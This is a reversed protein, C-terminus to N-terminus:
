LLARLLAPSYRLLSPERALVFPSLRTPFDIDGMSIVNRLSSSSLTRLLADLQADNLRLFVRRAIMARSLEKGIDAKWRREYESLKSSSFDGEEIASLAVDAALAGAAMGTFIGGGSIPKAQGAADGILMVHDIVYRGSNGLPIPGATINLARKVGLRKLLANLLELPMAAGGSVGLGIRSFDGAPIHWAFFGPAVSRGLYLSVANGSDLEGAVADCQICSVIDSFRSLGFTRSVSSYMGDAGILLHATVKRAEGDKVYHVTVRGDDIEAGTFAANLMIEAGRRAAEQALHRDLMSRDIVYGKPSDGSFEYAQGSPSVLRMSDVVNHYHPLASMEMVRPSVLGSCQVPKGIEFNEELMLVSTRHAANICFSSGAPGAGVVVIDYDVEM